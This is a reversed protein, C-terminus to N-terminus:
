QKSIMKDIQKKTLGIYESLEIILKKLKEDM